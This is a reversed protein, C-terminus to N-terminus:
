DAIGVRIDLSLDRAYGFTLIIKVKGVLGHIFLKVLYRFFDVLGFRQEM